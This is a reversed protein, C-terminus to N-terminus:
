VEKTPLREGLAVGAPERSGAFGHVLEGAEQVITAPKKMRPLIPPM